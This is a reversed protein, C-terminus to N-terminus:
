IHRQLITSINPITQIVHHYFETNLMQQIAKNISSKTAVQGSVVSLFYSNKTQKNLKLNLTISKYGIGSLLCYIYFIFDLQLVQFDTKKRKICYM